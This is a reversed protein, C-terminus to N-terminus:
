RWSRSFCVPCHQSAMMRDWHLATRGGRPGVCPVGLGAGCKPCAVDWILTERAQRAREKIQEPTLPERTVPATAEM